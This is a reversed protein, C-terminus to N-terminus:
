SAPPTIKNRFAATATLAIKTLQESTFPKDLIAHVKMATLEQQHDDAYGSIVIFSPRQNEPIKGSVIQLMEVGGLRPMSIDTFVAEYQQNLIRHLGEQGDSAQEVIYGQKSLVQAILRRVIPEDDVVLVRGPSGADAGAANASHSPLWVTFLTGKDVQSSVDISGGHEQVISNCISLGLGVGEYQAQASDGQAYAGKTTYFPDFISNIQDAPIGCGNDHVRIYIRDRDLGTELRILKMDRGALAHRANVLLNLVVHGLKNEDIMASPLGSLSKEITIKDKELEFSLIRLSQEVVCNVDGMRHQPKNQRSFALMDKVILHAKECAEFASKLNKEVADPLGSEVMSLEITGMIIALLNNFQHATGAALTGVAALKETRLLAQEQAKIDTMDRGIGVLGIMNGQNDKLPIKTSLIFQKQGTIKHHCEDLFSRAHGEALLKQEQDYFAQAQERPLQDFDTKGIIEDLKKYGAGRVCALNAMVIHGLVDKVYIYDPIHDILMQLLDLKQDLEQRTKELTTIDRNIGLVGVIKGSEDRYPTKTRIVCSKSGNNHTFWEKRNFLPVGSEMIKKEENRFHDANKTFDFDQDTKGLIKGSDPEGFLECLAQNVLIFRSETDKLYIPDPLVDIVTKLLQLRRAAERQSNKIDTIDRNIGLIGTIKGQSNYCPIKSKLITREKGEIDMYSNTVNILPTGTKIIEKEEIVYQQAEDAPHFDHDNNGIMERPDDRGFRRAYATNVYLLRNDLDKLCVMDPLAEMLTQLLKLKQASEEQASKLGTIDRTVGIVGTIEGLHNTYPVKTTMLWVKNGPSSEFSEVKNNMPTRTQIVRLEDARYEDALKKDVFDCDRKGLIKEEPLHFLRCTAENILLFRGERDKLYFADPMANLALRLLSLKETASDRAESLATIDRNIGLLGIIKGTHDYCPYKSKLLIHEEGKRDRHINREDVIPQGTNLVIQEEAFYLDAEEKPHFDYDTKGLISEPSHTNFHRCAADNVLIFRSKTDKLYVLDPLAELLIEFALLKENTGSGERLQGLQKELEAIRQDKLLLQRELEGVDPPPSVKPNDKKM